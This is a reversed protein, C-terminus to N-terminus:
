TITRSIDEVVVVEAETGAVSFIYTPPVNMGESVRLLADELGSEAGVYAQSSRLNNQIRAQEQFTTFFLSSGMSFLVALVVLTIYIAAFGKQSSGFM